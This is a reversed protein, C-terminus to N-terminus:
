FMKSLFTTVKLTDNQTKGWSAVFDCLRVNDLASADTPRSAASITWILHVGNEFLSGGDPPFNDAQDRDINMRLSEIQREILHGAILARNSGTSRKWSSTQFLFITMGIIGIIAMSVLVEMLTFGGKKRKVFPCHPKM